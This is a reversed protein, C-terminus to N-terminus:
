NNKLAIFITLDDNITTPSLYVGFEAGNEVKAGYKLQLSNNYSINAPSGNIMWNGGTPNFAQKLNGVLIVSLLIM